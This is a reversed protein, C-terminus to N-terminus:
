DIGTTPLWSRPRWWLRGGRRGRSRGRWVLIKFFYSLLLLLFFNFFYVFWLATFYGWKKVGCNIPYIIGMKRIFKTYKWFIIKLTCLAVLSVDEELAEGTFYLVARPVIRERIYHGIEFDAALLAETDDDQLYNFFM